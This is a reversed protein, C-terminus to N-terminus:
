ASQRAAALHKSSFRAVIERCVHRVQGPAGIRLWVGCFDSERPRAAETRQAPPQLVVVSLAISDAEGWPTHLPVGVIVLEWDAQEDVLVVDPLARLALTLYAKVASMVGEVAPLTLKVRTSLSRRAREQPFIAAVPDNMERTPPLVQTTVQSGVSVSPASEQTKPIDLREDIEEPPREALIDPTKKRKAM